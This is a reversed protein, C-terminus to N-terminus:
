RIMKTETAGTRKPAMLCRSWCFFAASRSPVSGYDAAAAGAQCGFRAPTVSGSISLLIQVFAPHAPAIAASQVISSM